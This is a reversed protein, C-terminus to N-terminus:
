VRAPLDPGKARTLLITYMELSELEALEEETAMGFKRMRELPAILAEVRALEAARRSPFTLMAEEEKSPGAYPAVPGYEGSKAREFLERGHEEPDDPRAAFPVAQDPLTSFTVMLSIITQEENAWAPASAGLITIIPKM